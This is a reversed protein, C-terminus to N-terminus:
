DRRDRRYLVMSPQTSCSCSYQLQLQQQNDEYEVTESQEFSTKSKYKAAAKKYAAEENDSTCEMDNKVVGAYYQM